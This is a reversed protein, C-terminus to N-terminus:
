GSYEKKVCKAITSLQMNSTGEYIAGIKVDRYFKEQPFDRTFGVGGMWDICKIAARQAVESAYFKAMAAEKLFPVGQEQLRAANYTMLRAAEIETAITAIQHQMSQFNYISEGFQKRELLYPITADFTGQALGVMQAGIGIRGENLFGAAYKYGHGFTGLINEEPVRVNDFTLMCTGSARIGLKDEPKNVILGPTERDVIFTTIGRYGDEPKANAFVLFVGAVDSNSIWMKTGNIVYHSGDKKAVTKLSFADSGAGPETLAFSGAYEQALKPLYKAKQEANGFKIMLSNVLTNHIDVFAAVAPDIKSLEEVVIINTMFNCGSGGLETDIEIGMLGNDFVAKVVSPDFKHELDMKKVLPLIQDQALKAVTEKMMKEDETLFTLPPPLGTASSMAANQQRAAANVLMRMPLKKLSNMM